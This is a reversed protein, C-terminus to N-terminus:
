RTGGGGGGGAGAGGGSSSFGGGASTSGGASLGATNRTYFYHYGYYNGYYYPYTEELYEWTEPEFEELYSITEDAQGLIVSWIMLSEWDEDSILSTDELKKVFNQYLVIELALEEGKPTLEEIAIPFGWDEITFMRLYGHEVLWNESVTDVSEVLRDISKTNKKSWKEIDPGEIKGDADAVELLMGWIVEDFRSEGLEFLEVYESFALSNIEYEEAFNMIQMEATIKKRGFASTDEYTRLQIKGQETWGLLYAFFFDAFGGGAPALKSILAAYNALDGEIQPPTSAKNKRNQALLQHPNFHNNEKRIRERRVGYAVAIGTGSIGLLAFAGIMIKVWLPMPGAENYSSGELAMERQEALTMEVRADTRFTNPAFQLLLIIDNSDDLNTGSWQVRGDELDLAGEFGFGYFEELDESLDFDAFVELTMADTPLSLFSDFNWFLAQGDDLERVMNSLTYTLDYRQTGYESIGWVLEEGNDGDFVGYKFAKEDFSDDIDWNPEEEFGEVSFDILETPGLNSLEIYVETGESVEMVRRERITASGDGNLKVQIAISSISNGEASVVRAFPLIFLIVLMSLLAKIGKRLADM